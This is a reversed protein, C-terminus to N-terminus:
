PYPFVLFIYAVALLTPYLLLRHMLLYSMLRYYVEVGAGVILHVM